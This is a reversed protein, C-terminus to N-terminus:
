GSLRFAFLKNNSSACRKMDSSDGNPCQTAEVYGSGWYVSGDVVAAGAVVPGGSAFSWRIDGTRADLAYMNAGTQATSAGYVVGGGTSVYGMDAAGQPDAVQWLFKGTAADLAAWSGGTVTTTVGQFSTIQYPLGYFNSVGVYIRRGDTASAFEVGGLAGGPGVMTHWVLSGTDPDFAWYVGSKQGVGVLQKGSPLQILNPGSGFDFDPGCNPAQGNNCVNTFVDATMTNYFWKLQGTTRDLALVADAHDDASPYTCGTEGPDTCVGPPTSYNNGTGVYLLNNHPDITPTSGWVAGGSYGDPVTYTKWLQTGTTANLAVVSGRFSCCPYGPATALNEEASSVGVYVTGQYIVPSGTVDAAYHPDVQTKWRLQGTVQDVALVLAGNGLPDVVGFVLEGGAVAPSDRMSDGTFGTYDSISHSWRVAGSQADVAWLKGGSDGAYVTGDAVVPTAWVDGATTLSWAQSLRSVTFPNIMYEDAADRTNSVDHGAVSWGDQGFWEPAADASPGVVVMAAVVTLLSPWIPWIRM